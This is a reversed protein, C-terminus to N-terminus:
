SRKIKKIVRDLWYRSGIIEDNSLLKKMPVKDFYTCGSCVSVLEDSTKLKSVLDKEKDNLNYQGLGALRELVIVALYKEGENKSTLLGSIAEYNSAKLLKRVKEVTKTQSGEFYCPFGVIDKLDVNDQAITPQTVFLILGFLLAAKM